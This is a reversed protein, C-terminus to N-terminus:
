GGISEAIESLKALRHNLGSKALPPDALAALDALPLEPNELRLVAAQRLKLPLSDLGRNKEILKIDAIQKQAANVSRQLNASECNNIRNVRGRVDKTVRVDEFHLLHASAGIIGLFDSIQEADKLYVIYRGRRQTIRAKLGFSNVLKRVDGALYERACPLELHYTKAPDTITGCALFAGRLFAKKCCRKKIVEASIGDTVYNLGEKVGLLGAERLIGEANMDPTINLEYVCGGALPMEANDISLSGKTGFYEKILTIFLRAVAPNNTSVRVGMRGDTITISGAFRLFDAIQALQCCKKTVPITTLEKKVDLAFSM